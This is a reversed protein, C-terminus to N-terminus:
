AAACPAGGEGAGWMCCHVGAHALAHVTMASRQRPRGASTGERHGEDAADCVQRSGVGPVLFRKAPGDPRALTCALHTRGEGGFFDLRACRDQLRRPRKPRPNRDLTTADQETENRYEHWGDIGLESM